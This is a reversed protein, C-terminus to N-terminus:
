PRQTEFHYIGKKGCIFSAFLCAVAIYGGPQVGFLEVSMIICAIPTNAAAAFVAVFGMGALLEIPLPIFFSLANGLTAGIFFLPTVEGGKFGCSLTLVTLLLKIAFDYIPLPEHFADLITPIGLGIYKTTHMSWIIVVLIVGGILPRLPPYSIMRKFLNTAQHSLWIFFRAVFGFSIGAFIAFLIGSVAIEPVVNITYSTHQIGCQKCTSDAIYAALISPLIAKNKLRGINVVEWGFIIGALPTGFVAAFGASIGAILLLKREDTNLQFLRAFQDAISGGMQIATGERGASGGFLHTVVTSLYILPAMIFPVTKQPYHIEEFLLHNGKVVGTGWYHYIMGILLGALPLFLIIFVHNERFNTVLELSALFVAAAIGAVVGTCICVCLWKFFYLFSNPRNTKLFFQQNLRQQDM